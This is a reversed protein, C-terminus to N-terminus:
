SRSRHLPSVRAGGHRFRRRSFGKSESAAAAGMHHRRPDVKESAENRKQTESLHLSNEVKKRRFDSNPCLKLNICKLPEVRGAYTFLLDVTLRPPSPEERWSSSPTVAAWVRGAVCRGERIERGHTHICKNQTHITSFASLTLLPPNP